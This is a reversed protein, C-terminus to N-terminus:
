TNKEPSKFESYGRKEEILSSWSFCNKNSVFAFIVFCGGNLSYM